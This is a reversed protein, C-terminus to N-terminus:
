NYGYIQELYGPNNVWFKCCFCFENANHYVFRSSSWLIIHLNWIRVM